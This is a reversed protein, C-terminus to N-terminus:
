LIGCTENKYSIGRVIKDITHYNVGIRKAIEGVSEGARYCVVIGKVEEPTFLADWARSGTRSLGTKLAHHVNQTRTVWELNSVTNNEKNGDIHNVEPLGKPNSLFTEAVIRHLYFPKSNKIRIALYGHGNDFPSLLRYECYTFEQIGYTRAKQRIRGLNSVQINLPEFDKWVENPLSKFKVERHFNEAVLIHQYHQKCKGNKTLGYVYRGGYSPRYTPKLIRTPLTRKNGYHDFYTKPLSKVQGDESIDYLGEYGEITKWIM